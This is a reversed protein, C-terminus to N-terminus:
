RLKNTTPTQCRSTNEETLKVLQSQIENLRDEMDTVVNNQISIFCYVCIMEGEDLDEERLFEEYIRSKTLHHWYCNTCFRQRECSTCTRSIQDQCNINATCRQMPNIPIYILTSEASPAQSTPIVMGLILDSGELSGGQGQQLM